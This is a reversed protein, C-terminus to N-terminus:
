ASKDKPINAVRGHRLFLPDVLYLHLRAILWGILSMGIGIAISKLTNRWRIVRLVHGSRAKGLLAVFVRTLVIMGLMGGLVAAITGLRVGRQVAALLDTSLLNTTRWRFVSWGGASILAALVMGLLIQLPLLQRWVKFARNRSTQLLTAVHRTRKDNGHLYPEIASFRWEEKGGPAAHAEDFRQAATFQQDTMRYASAMLAYAEVESFSDLDTRVAALRQQIPIAIGYSTGERM